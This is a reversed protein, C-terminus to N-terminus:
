HNPNGSWFTVVLDIENGAQAPVGLFKADTIEVVNRLVVDKEPQGIQPSVSPMVSGQTYLFYDSDNGLRRQMELEVYTTGVPIAKGALTCFQALTFPLEQATNIDFNTRAMFSDLKLIATVPAKSGLLTFDTENFIGAPLVHSTKVNYYQTTQVGASSTVTQVEINDGIAYFGSPENAKAVYILGTAEPPYTAAASSSSIPQFAAM